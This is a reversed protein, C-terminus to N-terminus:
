LEVREPYFKLLTHTHYRTSILCCLSHDLAQFIPFRPKYPAEDGSRPVGVAPRGGSDDTSLGPSLESQVTRLRLEGDAM